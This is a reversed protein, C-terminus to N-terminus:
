ARTVQALKCRVREVAHDLRAVTRELDLPYGVVVVLDSINTHAEVVALIGRLAQPEMDAVQAAAPKGVVELHHVQGVLAQQAQPTPCYRRQASDTGPVVQTHPQM